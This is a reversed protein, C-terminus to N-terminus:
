TIGIKGGSFYNGGGLQLNVAINDSFFYRGGIQAYLYLGSNGNGAYEISSGPGDWKSSFVIFGLSLGMYLDWNSPMELLENFHYNGIQRKYVDSAASSRSQTSRPPRRIM